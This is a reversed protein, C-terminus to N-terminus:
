VRLGDPDGELEGVKEGVELGLRNQMSSGSKLTFSTLVNEQSHTASFSVFCRQRLPLVTCATSNQRAVHSGAHAVGDGVIGGVWAGEKLGDDSDCHM